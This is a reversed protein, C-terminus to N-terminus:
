RVLWSLAALAELSALIALLPWPSFGSRVAYGGSTLLEASGALLDQRAARMQDAIGSTYRYGLIQGAVSGGFVISGVKRGDRLLLVLGYGVRIESLEGWPIVHRVLLNDVIVGDRDMRIASHWGLLWFFYAFLSFIVAGLFDSDNYAAFVVVVFVIVTTAAALLTFVALPWKCFAFNMAAPSFHKLLAGGRDLSNFGRCPFGMWWAQISQAWEAEGRVADYMIVAGVPKLTSPIVYIIFHRGAHHASVGAVPEGGLDQLRLLLEDNGVFTKGRSAAHRYKGELSERVASAPSGGIAYSPRPHARLAAVCARLVSDEGGDGLATLVEDPTVERFM